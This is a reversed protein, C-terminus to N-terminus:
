GGKSQINRLSNAIFRGVIYSFREIATVEKTADGSRRSMFSESYWWICCEAVYPPWSTLQEQQIQTLQAM